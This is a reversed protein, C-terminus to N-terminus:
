GVQWRLGLKGHDPTNGVWTGSRYQRYAKQASAFLPPRSVDMHSIQDTAYVGHGDDAWEMMKAASRPKIEPHMESAYRM